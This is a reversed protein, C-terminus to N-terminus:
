TFTKPAGGQVGTPPGDDATWCALTVAMRAGDGEDPESRLMRWSLSTSTTTSPSLLPLAGTSTLSMLAPRVDDLPELRAEFGSLLRHKRAAPSLASEDRLSSEPRRRGDARM